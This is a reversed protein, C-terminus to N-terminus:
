RSRSSSGPSATPRGPSGSRTSAATSRSARQRSRGARAAPEEQQAQSRRASMIPSPARPPRASAPSAASSSMTPSSRARGRRAPRHSRQRRCIQAVRARLYRRRITLDVYAPLDTAPVVTKAARGSRGAAPRKTARQHAAITVQISRDGAPEATVRAPAATDFRMLLGGDGISSARRARVLGRYSAASPWARRACRRRADASRAPTPNNNVARINRSARRFASCSPRGAPRGRHGAESGRAGVPGPQAFPDGVCFALLVSEPWLYALDRKLTTLIKARAGRLRLRQYPGSRVSGFRRHCPRRVM